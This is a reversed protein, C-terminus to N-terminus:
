TLPTIYGSWVADSNISSQFHRNRLPPLRSCLSRIAWNNWVASSGVNSLKGIGSMLTIRGWTRIPRKARCSITSSSWLRMVSAVLAKKTGRRAQLRRYLAALSTPRTHAAGPAAEILAQRLWRSGQRTKGSKRKGASEHNGPGMGAWSARPKASPFRRMDHGIEALIIEAARRRIGPITDLLTMDAEAEHLRDQLGAIDSVVAALQIHADELVKRLRNVIRAREAVLTSRHRTLDRLARQPAPPIFSGRLLGHQLLAAVWEADKADTKRGPVAKIRQANVVLLEFMGELLNYVPKWYVGTSEMAVPTCGTASLWDALALIDQTMTGFPRLEQQRQGAADFRRLCAVIQTKHGAVGCCCAHMIQLTERRLRGGIRM